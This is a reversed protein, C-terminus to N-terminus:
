YLQSINIPQNSIDTSISCISVDLDAGSKFFILNRAHELAILNTTSGLKSITPFQRVMNHSSSWSKGSEMSSSSFDQPSSSMDIFQHRSYSSASSRNDFEPSISKRPTMLSPFMRDISPRGSSVFSIDTSEPSLDYSNNM